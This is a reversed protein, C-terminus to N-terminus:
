TLKVAMPIVTHMTHYHLTDNLNFNATNNGHDLPSFLTLPQTTLHYTPNQNISTSTLHPELNSPPQHFIPNAIQLFNISLTTRSKISSPIWSIISTSSLHPEHNSPLHPEHNSPPKHFIPNTIQHLNISSPTRSKISTSPLHPEHNSPPIFSSPTRSKISTHLFIPNTIQHLYSPLHPERNLPPIFSFPTQSKISTSPLHPEHNSPPIFSSPTRSKISTHLLIPNAIQHLYSPLHPEHNSPPQHFIPNAIQHLYSPLHHEHNSPPIFSFPTRSKISTTNQYWKNSQRLTATLPWRQLYLLGLTTKDIYCVLGWYSTKVGCEKYFQPLSSRKQGCCTKYTHNPTLKPTGETSCTRKKHWNFKMSIM